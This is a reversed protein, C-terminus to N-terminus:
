KCQDGVVVRREERASGGEARGAREVFSLGMSMSPAHAAIRAAALILLLPERCVECIVVRGVDLLAPDDQGEHTM